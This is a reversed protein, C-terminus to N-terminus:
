QQAGAAQQKTKAFIMRGASTQLISHVAVEARKGIWKRGEEVVVMTGDDLYGIGQDAEKGEKMIFLSMSEGPLVVPKLATTLDSINLVPVDHLVATKNINFDITVVSGGFYKALAVIHEAPNEGKVDKATTTVRIDKLDRLRTVIDLGRRGRAKELQDKSSAMINLKDVICHPLVVTGELFGTECLDIIRGDILASIDVIKIHRGKKNIGELESAKSISLAAGLVCLIGAAAVKYIKWYESIDYVNMKYVAYDCLFYIMFGLMAGFIAIMISVFKLNHVFHEAAIIITGCLLALMISYYDKSVFMYVLFPMGILASIRFIWLPM